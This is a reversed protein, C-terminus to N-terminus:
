LVQSKKFRDSRITTVCPVAAPTKEPKGTSTLPLVPVASTNPLFGSPLAFSSVDQNAAYAGDESGLYTATIITLWPPKPAEVEPTAAFSTSAM